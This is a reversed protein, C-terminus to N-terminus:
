LKINKNKAKFSQRVIELAKSEIQRIRERTVGIERGVEEYTRPIRDLLGFRLDLVKRLKPNLGVEDLKRLLISGEAGRIMDELGKSELSLVEKSDLSIPENVPVIRSHDQKKWHDYFGQLWEPFLVERPKDLVSAIKKQREIDPFVRCCEIQGYTALGVGIEKAIDKQLIGKDLRAKELVYNKVTIKLRLNHTPNNEELDVVKLGQLERITEMSLGTEISIEQDTPERQLSETLKKKCEVLKFIEEKTKKKYM